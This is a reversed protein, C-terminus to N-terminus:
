DRIVEWQISWPQFLGSDSRAGEQWITRGTADPFGSCPSDSLSANLRLLTGGGCLWQVTVGQPGRIFYSAEGGTLRMLCPLIEARRVALVHRYWRHWEEHEAQECDDWRLIASSFTNSSLPDPILHRSEPDAFEPLHAFEARRGERVAQGLEGEFDCFFPFPQPADWEEGM